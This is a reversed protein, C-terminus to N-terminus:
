PAVVERAVYRGSPLDERLLTLFGPVSVEPPPRDSIDEGPFAEQHMQTRMDGPDVVYVRVGNPEEEAALIRSAHELAAKSSGYGGWGEYPEVGADSTINLIRGKAERLAPLAEAALALPAVVNVDYVRRLEDAPYEALPPQPSPGLHSANNVLADLRGGTAAVLEKRHVADTVDGAVAQHGEGPLGALLEQLADGDRADVVLRWGDEALRRALAAGLGRSAGTVIAVPRRDTMVPVM